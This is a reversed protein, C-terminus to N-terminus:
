VFCLLCEPELFDPSQRGHDQLRSEDHGAQRARATVVLAQAVGREEQVSRGRVQKSGFELAVDAFTQEREFILNNFMDDLRVLIFLSVGLLVAPPDLLFHEFNLDSLPLLM